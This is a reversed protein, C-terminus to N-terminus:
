GKLSLEARKVVTARLLLPLEPDVEKSTSNAWITFELRSQTDALDKPDFRVQLEVPSQDETLPNGLSCALLTDNIPACTLQKGQWRLVDAVPSNLVCYNSM